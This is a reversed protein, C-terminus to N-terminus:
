IMHFGEVLVLARTTKDPMNISLLTAQVLLSAALVGLSDVAAEGAGGDGM